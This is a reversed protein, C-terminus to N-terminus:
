GSDHGYFRKVVPMGYIYSLDIEPPEYRVGPKVPEWDTSLEIGLFDSMRALHEDRDDTDIPLVRTRGEMFAINLLVWEEFFKPGFEGRSYWSKYVDKPNRIPSVIDGQYNRQNGWHVVSIKVGYADMLVKRLFNTGTHKVSWVEVNMATQFRM